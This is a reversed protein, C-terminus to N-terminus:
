QHNKLVFCHLAKTNEKKNAQGFQQVFLWTASSKLAMVSMHRWQLPHHHANGPWFHKQSRNWVHLLNILTHDLDELIYWHWALTVIIVLDSRLNACVVVAWSDRCTCFQLMVYDNLDYIFCPFNECSKLENRHRWLPRSLTELWWGWSQKSLRKNLRLDFFADFSGAVPRQTPFEGSGTFEGWLHGTVRFINGNSSTMMYTSMGKHFLDWSKGTTQMIIGCQVDIASRSYQQRCCKDYLFVSEVTIFMFLVDVTAYLTLIWTNCEHFIDFNKHICSWLLSTVFVNHRRSCDAAQSYKKLLNNVDAISFCDSLCWTCPGKNHSDMLSRFIGM